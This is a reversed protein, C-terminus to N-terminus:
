PRCKGSSGALFMSNVETPTLVRNFIEVEDLMGNFFAGPNAAGNAGIRLPFKNVLSGMRTPIATGHAVGDLYWHIVGNPSGTRKVTVAVHHWANLTFATLKASLYNSYGTTDGLQLGLKPGANATPYTILFFSYGVPVTDRKDVITNTTPLAPINVWADISFDGTCSSFDGGTCTATGAPGFNTVISDPAEIYTSFGDFKLAGSVKGTSVPTPAPSSWVATNRTALNSSLGGGSEDLTYWAVMTGSPPPDCQARLAPAAVAIATACFIALRAGAVIRNNQLTTKTKM